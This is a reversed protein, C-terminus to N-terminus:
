QVIAGHCNDHIGPILIIMLFSKFVFYENGNTKVLPKLFNFTRAKAWSYLRVQASARECSIM